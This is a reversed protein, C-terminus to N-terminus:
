PCRMEVISVLLSIGLMRESIPLRWLPGSSSNVPQICHFTQNPKAGGAARSPGPRSVFVRMQHRTRGAAWDVSLRVPLEAQRHIFLLSLDIDVGSAM